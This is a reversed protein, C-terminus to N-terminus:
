CGMWSRVTRWLGGSVGRNWWLSGGLTAAAILATTTKHEARLGWRDRVLAHAWNCLWRDPVYGLTDAMMSNIETHVQLRQGLTKTDAYFRSREDENKLFFFEENNGTRVRALYRPLVFTEKEHQDLYGHLTCGYRTVGAGLNEMRSIVEVM